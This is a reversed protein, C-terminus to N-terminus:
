EITKDFQLMGQIYITPLLHLRPPARATASCVCMGDASRLDNVWGIMCHGGGIARIDKEKFKM